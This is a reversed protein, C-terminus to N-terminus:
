LGTVTNTLAKNQNITWQDAVTASGVSGAAGAVFATATIAAPATVDASGTSVFTGAIVTASYANGSTNLSQGLTVAGCTVNAGLSNPCNALAGGWTAGTCLSGDILLSYFRRSGLTGAQTPDGEPRFGAGGLCSTYTGWEGKNSLQATYIGSLSLQAEKQRAKAQYRQFNPIAISALIGIIAVVIMLEVLTFGAEALRVANMKKM